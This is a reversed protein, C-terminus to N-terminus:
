GSDRVHRFGALADPDDFNAGSHLCLEDLSERLRPHVDDLRATEDARLSNRLHTSMRKKLDDAYRQRAVPYPHRDDHSLLRPSLADHYSASWLIGACEATANVM